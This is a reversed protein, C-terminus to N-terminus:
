KQGLVRGKEHLVDQLYLMQTTITLVILVPAALLVGFIGAYIGGLVQATVLYGPAIHIQREQILPILIYSEAAHALLFLITVFLAYWPGELLGVLIAPIASIVAGLYPIFTFIGAIFGLLFALKVGLLALGIAVLVGVMIMALLRGIFWRRLANGLEAAVQLMRERKGPPWLRVVTRVYLSPNSAFYVGIVVVVAINTVITLPVSIFGGLHSWVQKGVSLMQDSDGEDDDSKLWQGPYLGHEHLMEQLARYEKQVAQGLEPAQSVMRAGGLFFGAGILGPIIIVVLPLAWARRLRIFCNVLRVAGDLLVALLVAAFIVLLGWGAQWMFSAILLTVLALLVVILARKTFDALSGSRKPTEAM